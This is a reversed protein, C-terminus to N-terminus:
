ITTLQNNVMLADQSSGRNLSRMNLAKLQKNTGSKTTSAASIQSYTGGPVSKRTRIIWDRNLPDGVEMNMAIM